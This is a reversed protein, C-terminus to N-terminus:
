GDFLVFSAPPPLVTVTIYRSGAWGWAVAQSVGVGGFEGAGVDAHVGEHHQEAV